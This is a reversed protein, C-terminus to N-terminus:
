GLPHEASPHNAIAQPHEITGSGELYATLM